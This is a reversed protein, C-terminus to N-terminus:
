LCLRASLTEAIMVINIVLKPAPHALQAQATASLAILIATLYKNM